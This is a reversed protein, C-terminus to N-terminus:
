HYTAREKPHDSLANSPYACPALSLRTMPQMPSPLKWTFYGEIQDRSSHAAIQKCQTSNRIRHESLEMTQLHYYLIQRSHLPAFLVILLPM